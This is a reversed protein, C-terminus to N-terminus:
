ENPIEEIIVNWFDEDKIEQIPLHKLGLLDSLTTEDDKVAHFYIGKHMRNSHLPEFRLLKILNM